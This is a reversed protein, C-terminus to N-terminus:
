LNCVYMHSFLKKHLDEVLPLHGKPADLSFIMEEYALWQGNARWGLRDSLQLEPEELAIRSVELWIQRQISFGFHGKSAEIWLQDITHLDLCPITSIDKERLWGEKERNATQLLLSETEQDAEQWQKTMLLKQLTTFDSARLEIDQSKHMPPPSPTTDVVEEWPIGIAQCISIFNEQRVASGKRFRKLTAASVLATNCWQHSTVTWGKKRRALDINALGEASARLTVAM